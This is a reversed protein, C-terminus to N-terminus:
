KEPGREKEREAVNERRQRRDSARLWFEKKRLEVRMRKLKKQTLQFSVILSYCDERKTKLMEKVSNLKQVAVIRSFRRM